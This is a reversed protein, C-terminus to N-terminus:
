GQRINALAPFLTAASVPKSDTAVVPAVPARAAVVYLAKLAAAPVDKHEVKLKDLAFRYVAEASDLAIDNGVTPAVATRAVHLENTAAIAADVALKTAAAAEDKKVFDKTAETVAADVAIKVTAADAAAPASLAAPKGQAGLKDKAVKDKAHRKYAETKEEATIKDMAKGASKCFADCAAAKDEDSMKDMASSVEADDMDEDLAKDLALLQTADPPTAFLAALGALFRPRKM